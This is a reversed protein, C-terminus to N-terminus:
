RDFLGVEAEEAQRKFVLVFQHVFGGQVEPTPLCIVSIPNLGLHVIPNLLIQVEVM